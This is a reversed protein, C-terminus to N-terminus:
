ETEEEEEDLIEAPDVPFGDAGLFSVSGDNGILVGRYKDDDYSM